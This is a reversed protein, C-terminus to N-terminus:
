VLVYVCMRVHSCKLPDQSGNGNMQATSGSGRGFQEEFRLRLENDWIRSNDQFIIILIKTGFNDVRAGPQVYLQLGAPLWM